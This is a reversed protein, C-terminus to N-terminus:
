IYTCRLLMNVSRNATGVLMGSSPKTQFHKHQQKELDALRLIVHEQEYYYLYLSTILYQRLM